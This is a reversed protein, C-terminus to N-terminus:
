KGQKRRYEAMTMGTLRKFLSLPYTGSGFGCSECIEGISQTTSVLSTKLANIRVTQIYNLISIGEIQRFRLDLLRRSIGLGTALSNIDRLSPSEDIATKAMQVIRSATGPPELSRRYVIHQIPYILKSATEKGNLLRDLSKAALYGATKFDPQISALPPHATQCTFRENDVGLVSLDQPVKIGVSEATDLIQRGLIDNVAFISMPRRLALLQPGLPIDHRLLIATRHHRKLQRLFAQYRVNSWLIDDAAPYCAYTAHQYNAVLADAAMRGVHPNDAFIQVCRKRRALLETHRWDIAVLPIPLGSAARCKSLTTSGDIILGDCASLLERPLHNNRNDLRDLRIRWDPKRENVYQMIGDYKDVGDQISMPLCFRVHRVHNTDKSQSKIM